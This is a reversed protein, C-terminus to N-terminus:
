SCVASQGWSVLLMVLVSLTFTRIPWGMPVLVMFVGPYCFVWLCSQVNLKSIKEHIDKFSNSFYKPYAKPFKYFYGFLALGGVLIFIAIIPAISFCEM